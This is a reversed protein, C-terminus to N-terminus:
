FATVSRGCETVEWGTPSCCNETILSAKILALLLRLKQAGRAERSFCPSKLKAADAIRQDHQLVRRHGQMHM